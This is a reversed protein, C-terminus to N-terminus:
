ASPSSGKAKIKGMTSDAAFTPAAASPSGSTATKGGPTTSSSDDDGCAAAVLLVLVAFLGLLLPLIRIRNTM